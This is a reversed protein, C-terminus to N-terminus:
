ATETDKVEYIELWDATERISDTTLEMLLEDIDSMSAETRKLELLQKNYILFVERSSLSRQASIEFEAHNRIAFATTGLIPLWTALLGLFKSLPYSEPGWIGLLIKVGIILITSWFMLESLHALRHGLLKMSIANQTHYQYQRAVWQGRSFHIADNIYARDVTHGSFGVWRVVTEIYLYAWCREPGGHGLLNRGVIQERDRFRRMPYNTGFFSLFLTPRLFEAICRYELWKDHLSRKHDKRYLWYIVVLISMEAIAFILPLTFYKSKDAFAIALSAIILASAALVYIFVFISRHISAYHSALRDARLYAAYYRHSSLNQFHECMHSVNTKIEAEVPLQKDLKSLEENLQDTSIFWSKLLSFGYHLPNFHSREIEIPGSGNFDVEATHEKCEVSEKAYTDFKALIKDALPLSTHPDSQALITDFLLIHNLWQNLSSVNLPEQSQGNETSFILRVNDSHETDIWIVPIKAKYAQAVTYTTGFGDRKQGDYLAVVLDCNKILSEGCNKYAQDANKRQGDLELVRSHKSQYGAAQLLAYFEQKSAEDFDTAYEEAKFPLICSLEFKNKVLSSEVLLRDAGDALSSIVRLIPPTAAYLRRAHPHQYCKALETYILDYISEIQQSLKANTISINDHKRHGAVAVRLTMPVLPTSAFYQYSNEHRAHEMVEGNLKM